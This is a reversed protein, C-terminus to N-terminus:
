QWRTGKKTFCYACQAAVAQSCASPHIGKCIQRRRASGGEGVEPTEWGKAYAPKTLNGLPMRVAGWGYSVCGYCVCGVQWTKLLFDTHLETPNDIKMTQIYHLSFDSWFLRQQVPNSDKGHQGKSRQFKCVQMDPEVPSVNEDM